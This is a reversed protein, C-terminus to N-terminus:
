QFVRTHVCTHIYIHIYIIYFSSVYLPSDCFSDPSSFSYYYYYYLFGQWWYLTENFAQKVFVDVVGANSVCTNNESRAFLRGYVREMLIMYFSLSCNTIYWLIPIASLRVPTVLFPRSVHSIPSFADRFVSHYIATRASDREGPECRSIWCHRFIFLRRHPTSLYEEQRKDM